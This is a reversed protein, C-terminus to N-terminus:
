QTVEFNGDSYVKVKMRKRSSRVVNYTAELLEKPLSSSSVELPITESKVYHKNLARKAKTLHPENLSVTVDIECEYVVM